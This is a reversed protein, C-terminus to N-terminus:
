VIWVWRTFPMLISCDHDLLGYYPASNFWVLASNVAAVFIVYTDGDLIIMIIIYM